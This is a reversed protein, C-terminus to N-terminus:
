ELYKKYKFGIIGLFMGETRNEFLRVQANDPTEQLFDTQRKEELVTVQAPNYQALSPYRDYFSSGEYSGLIWNSWFLEEESANEEGFRIWLALEIEEKLHDGLSSVEISAISYNYYGWSIEDKWSDGHIHIYEAPNDLFLQELQSDISHEIVKSTFTRYVIGSTIIWHFDDILSDNIATSFAIDEESIDPHIISQLYQRETESVLMCREICYCKSVDSNEIREPIVMSVLNSKKTTSDFGEQNLALYALKEEITPFKSDDVIDLLDQNLNIPISTNITHTDIKVSYDYSAHNEDYWQLVDNENYGGIENEGDDVNGPLEDISCHSFLVVMVSIMIPYINKEIKM